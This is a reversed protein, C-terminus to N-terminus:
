AVQRNEVNERLIGKVESANSELLREYIEGKVDM